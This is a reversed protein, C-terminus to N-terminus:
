EVEFTFENPGSPKVSAKLGSTEGSGYKADLVSKIEPAPPQTQHENYYANAEDPTYQKGV